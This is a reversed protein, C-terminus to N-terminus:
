QASRNQHAEDAIRQLLKTTEPDIDGELRSMMM